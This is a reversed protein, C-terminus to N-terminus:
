AASSLMAVLLIGCIELMYGQAVVMVMHHDPASQLLSLRGAPVEPSWLSLKELPVQLFPFAIM